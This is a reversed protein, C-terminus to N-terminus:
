FLDSNSTALYFGRRREESRSDADEEEWGKWCETFKTATCISNDNDGGVSLRGRVLNFSMQAGGFDVRREPCSVAWLACLCEGARANNDPPTVPFLHIVNLCSPLSIPQDLPWRTNSSHEGEEAPDDMVTEM